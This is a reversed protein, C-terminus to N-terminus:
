LIQRYIPNQPVKSDKLEFRRYIRKSQEDYLILQTETRYIQLGAFKQNTDVFGEAIMKELDTKEQM